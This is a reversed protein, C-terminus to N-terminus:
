SVAIEASGALFYGDTALIKFYRANKRASIGRLKNRRISCSKESLIFNEAKVTHNVNRNNAGARCVVYGLQAYLKRAAEIRHVAEIGV